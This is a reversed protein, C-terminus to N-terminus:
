FKGRISYTIIMFYTTYFLLVVVSRKKQIINVYDHLDLLFINLTINFELHKGPTKRVELLIDLLFFDTGPTHVLSNYM